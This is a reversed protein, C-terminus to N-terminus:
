LFERSGEFSSELEDVVVCFSSRRCFIVGCRSVFLGLVILGIM